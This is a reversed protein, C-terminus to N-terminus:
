GGFGIRHSAVYSASRGIAELKVPELTTLDVAAFADKLQQQYRGFASHVREALRAPDSASTWDKQFAEQARQAAESNGSTMAAQMATVYDCYMRQMELRLAHHEACVNSFYETYARHFPSAPEDPEEGVGVTGTSTNPRQGVDTQLANAKRAM